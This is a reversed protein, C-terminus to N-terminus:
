PNDRRVILQRRTAPSLSGAAIPSGAIECIDGQRPCLGRCDPQSWRFGSAAGIRASLAERDLVNRAQELRRLAIRCTASPLCPNAPALPQMAQEFEDVARAQADRFQDPQRDLRCGGIRRKRVMLPLPPRSRSTGILGRSRRPDDGTIELLRPRPCPCRDTATEKGHRAPDDSAAVNRREFEFAKGRRGPEIGAGQRRVTQAMGKGAMQEGATGIQARQLLHEAMGINRRGLDVGMDLRLPQLRDDGGMMRQRSAISM